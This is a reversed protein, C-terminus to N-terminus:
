DESLSRDRIFTLPPLQDPNPRPMDVANVVYPSGIQFNFNKMFEDEEATLVPPETFNCGAAQIDTKAQYYSEKGFDNKTTDSGNNQVYYWMALLRAAKNSKYKQFLKLKVQEREQMQRNEGLFQDLKGQLILTPRDPVLMSENYFVQSKMETENCLSQVLASLDKLGANDNVRKMEVFKDVTSSSVSQEVLDAITEISNRHLYKRRLTTEFRIVGTAIDELHNIEELSVKQKLLTCRDNKIFEPLKLYFKVSYTAGPFSLATPYITPKKYPFRLFKLSNLMQEATPQNLCRWAYCCDLRSLRWSNLDAVEFDLQSEVLSKFGELAKIFEHLLYINHGYWYKPVSFEFGLFTDESKYFDPIQWFINRHFSPKDMQMEGRRSIFRKEDTSLQVQAWQWKDSSDLSNKLSAFQSESIPIGVRVTDIM